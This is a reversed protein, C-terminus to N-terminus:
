NEVYWGLIDAASRSWSAFHGTKWHNRFRIITDEYEPSQIFDNGLKTLFDRQNDTLVKDLDEIIIKMKKKKNASLCPNWGQRCGLAQRNELGSGNRELTEASRDM